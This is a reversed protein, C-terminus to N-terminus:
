KLMAKIKELDIRIGERSIIYRLFKVESKYFEYKKLKVLLSHDKLAQLVKKVHIVHEDYIKSFILIDDLYVV